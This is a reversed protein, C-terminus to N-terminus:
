AKVETLIQEIVEARTIQKEEAERSLFLRHGIVYPFQQMIDSPVVFDRDDMLASAKAMRVLALTARPSAGRKLSDNDRTARVLHVIFEYLADTIQVQECAKQLGLFDDKSIVPALNDVAEHMSARKAMKIESSEDPYGLSLGTMFRDVEAEPLSQTGETGNPNQTAIVLFPDPLQRTVGEATVQKEEMAELLASQTKTNARNIEDALILNSFLEGEQYVFEGKDPRYVSFGTLDSPMVDPTFQIRRTDLSLLRSFAKALTTKGTGPVDVLLVNGGAIFTALVERIELAKGLLVSEAGERIERISEQIDM